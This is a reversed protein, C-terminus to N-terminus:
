RRTNTFFFEIRWPAMLDTLLGSPTGSAKIKENNNQQTELLVLLFYFPKRRRRAVSPSNRKRVGNEKHIHHLHHATNCMRVTNGALLLLFQTRQETGDLRREDSGDQPKHIIHRVFRYVSSFSTARLICSPRKFRQKKRTDQFRKWLQRVDLGKTPVIYVGVAWLMVICHIFFM